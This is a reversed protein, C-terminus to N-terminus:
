ESVTRKLILEFTAGGQKWKGTITDNELTGTYRGFLAKIGMEVAQGDLTTSDVPIGTVGQDPSDLLASYGADDKQVRFVITLKPSPVSIVGDLRDGTRKLTLPLVQWHGEVINEETEVGKFKGPVQSAVDFAWDKGDHLAKTVKIGTMGQSPSDMTAKLGDESESLHFVIPIGEAKGLKGSWKGVLSSEAFVFTSGVVVLGFLWIIRKM